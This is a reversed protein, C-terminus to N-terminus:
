CVCACVVGCYLVACWVSSTVFYINTHDSVEM